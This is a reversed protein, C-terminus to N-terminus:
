RTEAISRRRGRDLRRHILDRGIGRLSRLHTSPLWSDPKDDAISQTIVALYFRQDFRQSQRALAAIHPDFRGPDFAFRLNHRRQVMEVQGGAVGEFWGPRIQQDGDTPPQRHHRLPNLQLGAAVGTQHQDTFGGTGRLRVVEDEHARFGLDRGPRLDHLDTRGSSFTSSALTRTAASAQRSRKASAAGVAPPTNKDTARGIRKDEVCVHSSRMSAIASGTPALAPCGIEGGRRPRRSLESRTADAAAQM